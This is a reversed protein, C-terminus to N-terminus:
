CDCSAGIGEFTAGNDVTREDNLGCRCADNEVHYPRRQFQVVRRVPSVVTRSEGMEAKNGLKAERNMVPLLAEPLRTVLCLKTVLFLKIDQRAAQWSVVNGLAILDRM